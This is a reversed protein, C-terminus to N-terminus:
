TIITKYNSEFTQQEVVSSKVINVSINCYDQQYFFLKLMSAFGKSYFGCM